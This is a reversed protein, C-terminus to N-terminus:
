DKALKMIQIFAVVINSFIVLNKALKAFYDGARMVLNKILQLM